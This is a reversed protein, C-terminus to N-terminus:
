LLGDTLLVCEDDSGQRNAEGRTRSQAPSASNPSSSTSTNRVLRREVSDKRRESGSSVVSSGKGAASGAARGHSESGGGRVRRMEPTQALRCIKQIEKSATSVSSSRRGSPLGIASGGSSGSRGTRRLVVAAARAAALRCRPSGQDAAGLLQQHKLQKQRVRATARDQLKALAKERPLPDPMKFTALNATNALRGSAGAYSNVPCPEFISSNLFPTSPSAADLLSPCLLQGWTVKPLESDRSPGDVVVPLDVKAHSGPLPSPGCAAILAKEKEQERREASFATEAAVAELAKRQEETAALQQKKEVQLSYLSRQRQRESTSYRTNANNIEGSRRNLEYPQRHPELTDFNKYYLNNRSSLFGVALQDTREGAVTKRQIEVMRANHEEQTVDIWRQRKKKELNELKVVNSFNRNDESTYRSLFKDLRLETRVRHLKGSPGVPVIIDEGRGEGALARRPAHPTGSFTPTEGGPSRMWVGASASPGPSVPFSEADREREERAGESTEAEGDSVSERRRRRRRREEEKPSPPGAEAEGEGGGSERAQKSASAAVEREGGRSSACPPEEEASERAKKASARSDSSPPLRERERGRLPPSGTATETSSAPPGPTHLFTSPSSGWNTNLTGQRNVVSAPTLARIRHLLQVARHVDNQREAELLQSLLKLMPLDPYYDRTIIHSLAQTYRQQNLPIASSEPLRFANKARLLSLQSAHLKLEAVDGAVSPAWQDKEGRPRAVDVASLTKTSSVLETKTQSARSSGGTMQGRPSASVSRQSCTHATALSSETQHPGVSASQATLVNRPVSLDKM